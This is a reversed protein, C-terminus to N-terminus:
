RSNGEAAPTEESGIMERNFFLAKTRTSNSFTLCVHYRENPAPITTHSVHDDLVYVRGLNATLLIELEARTRDM